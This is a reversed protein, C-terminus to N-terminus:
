TYSSPSSISSRLPTERIKSYIASDRLVVAPTLMEGSVARCDLATRQATRTSDSDIAEIGNL